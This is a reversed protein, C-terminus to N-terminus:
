KNCVVFVYRKAEDIKTVDNACTWFLLPVGASAWLESVIFYLSFSWYRLLSMAAGEKGAMATPLLNHIFDRNPYLIFAFAAYFIFFPLLTVLFLTSKSLCINSLKSYGLLFLMACPRYYFFLLTILLLVAIILSLKLVLHLCFILYNSKPM